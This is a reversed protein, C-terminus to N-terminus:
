LSGVNGTKNYSLRLKNVELYPSLTYICSLNIKAKSPDICYKIHYVNLGAQVTLSNLGYFIPM